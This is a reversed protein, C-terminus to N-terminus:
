VYIEYLLFCKGCAVRRGGQGIDTSAPRTAQPKTKMFDFTEGESLSM